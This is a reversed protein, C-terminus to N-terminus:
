REPPPGDPAYVTEFLDDHVVLYAPSLYGTRLNKVLPVNEAHVPSVGLYQGRRSRPLWKPIKGGAQTLRPELIYVPSGWTHANRLAQFDSKTLTLIEIPAIGSERNPTHNYLYAAHLVCLSWLAKDDAEPWYLAAHIM